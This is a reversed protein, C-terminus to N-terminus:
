SAAWSRLDDRGSGTIPSGHTILLHDFDVTDALRTFSEKLGRQIAPPDDGIYEDPVFHLDDVYHMVGDAVVLAKHGRLELAGEDPSIVGVEHTVVGGPLEDGFDYPEVAVQKDEFEHMGPRPGRITAGFRDGIEKSDRLHHRCSLVIERPERGDFWDLGDPPTIPDILVREDVLYYSSVEVGIHPHVATWHAVGPILEHIQQPM